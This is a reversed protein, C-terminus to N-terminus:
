IYIKRAAVVRGLPLIGIADGGGCPVNSLSEYTPRMTREVVAVVM